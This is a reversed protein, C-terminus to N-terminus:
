GSRAVRLRARALVLLYATVAALEWKRRHAVLGVMRRAVDRRRGMWPKVQGIYHIVRIGDPGRWRYHEHKVYHDLHPALVNYTPALHLDPTTKWDSWFFNILSQVGMSPPRGAAARWRKESEFVEPVKAVLRQTLDAEPEIVMVGANLDVCDENGPYRDAIVGSMHPREFLDDINRVVLIDSDIYVLKDFQTLSFVLLKEFVHAWHQHYDSARNASLIEDPIDLPTFPLTRIGARELVGEVDASVEGGVVVYLPHRSKCRVLSQHLVLVGNLYNDTSLVTVYAMADRDIPTDHV